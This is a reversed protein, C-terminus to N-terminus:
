KKPTWWEDLKATLEAVKKPNDPAVDNKEFPDEVIRFLEVKAEPENWKAPVILKWNGDVVWRYQLSSAPDHIDVANHTFVEGFIPEPETLSTLKRGPMEPTPELGAAALVTPALSVSNVPIDSMKPKVKGTWRVM